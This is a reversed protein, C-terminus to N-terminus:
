RDMVQLFEMIFDAGIQLFTDSILLETGCVPKDILGVTFFTEHGQFLKKLGDSM